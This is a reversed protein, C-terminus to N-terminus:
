TVSLFTIYLIIFEIISEFLLCLKYLVQGSKRKKCLMELATRLMEEDKHLGPFLGNIDEIIIIQVVCTRKYIFQANAKVAM